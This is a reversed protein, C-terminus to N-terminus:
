LSAAHWVKVRWREANGKVVKGESELKDLIQRVGREAATHLNAPYEKYVVKVIDMATVGMGENEPYLDDLVTLVELERKQRHRMYEDVRAKGDEIVPGHGPYARGKFLTKM